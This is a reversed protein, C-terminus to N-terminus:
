RGYRYKNDTGIVDPNYGAVIKEFFGKEFGAYNLTIDDGDSIMSFYPNPMEMYVRLSLKIGNYETDSKEGLPLPHPAYQLSNVLYELLHSHDAKLQVTAPSTEKIYVPIDSAGTIFYAM